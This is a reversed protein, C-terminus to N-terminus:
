LKTDKDDGDDTGKAEAEPSSTEKVKEDDKIDVKEMLEGLKAVEQDEEKATAETVPEAADRISELTDEVSPPLQTESSKSKWNKQIDL